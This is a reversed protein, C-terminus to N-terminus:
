RTNQYEIDAYGCGKDCVKLVENPAVCTALCVDYAKLNHDCTTAANKDCYVIKGDSYTIKIQDGAAEIKTITVVGVDVPESENSCGTLGFVFALSCCLACVLVLVKVFISRTKQM